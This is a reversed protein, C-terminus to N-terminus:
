FLHLHVINLKLGKRNVEQVLTDLDGISKKVNYYFQEDKLLLGV